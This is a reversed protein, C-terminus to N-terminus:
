LCIDPEVILLEYCNFAKLSFIPNLVMSFNSSLQALFGNFKALGLPRKSLKKQRYTYELIMCVHGNIKM